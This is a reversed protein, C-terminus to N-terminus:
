SVAYKDTDLMAESTVEARASLITPNISSGDITVGNGSGDLAREVAADIATESVNPDLVRAAVRYFEIVQEYPGSAYVRFSKNSSYSGGYSGYNILNVHLDGCTGALGLSGNFASLRFERKYHEGSSDHPDFREAPVIPTEAAANYEDVFRALHDVENPEEEKPEEQTAAPVSEQDNKPVTQEHKGCNGFASSAFILVIVIAILKKNLGRRGPVASNSKKRDSFRM